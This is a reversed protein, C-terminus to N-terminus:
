SRYSIGEDLARVVQNRREVDLWAKASSWEGGPKEVRLEFRTPGCGGNCASLRYRASAIEDPLETQTVAALKRATEPDVPGFRTTVFWSRCRDCYPKNLAPVVVALAAGLVLVGDMTWIMWVVAGQAQLGFVRLGRAARWRLFELFDDPPVPMEGLVKDQFLYAARRYTQADEAAERCTLRYSVYHQGFVAALAALVTGLLVTLRNGVQGVRSIGVLSAGLVVGVLLSFLLVPAWFPEVLVAVWGVLGGYVLCAPVWLWCRDWRLRAAAPPSQHTPTDHRETEM